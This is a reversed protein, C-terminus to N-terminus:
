PGPRGQAAPGYTRGKWAGGEGRWSRRASDVTMLTYLLGAVPLLPALLSPLGYWRLMPLYSGAMAAWAALGSAALLAAPAAPLGLGIAILGGVAALPPVLYLLLMGAVTGALLLPSYGLQAFASRAVMNWVGRLGEYPRLSRVERSLGLWLRGGEPRSRGKVLAALACDDIVAASIPALGGARELASRRLLLCGGAAGAMPRRRDNVWRFPYLKAFFYVFAPILLREWATATQLHAMASVLDLGEGEAKLVLSRLVHPAHAIDADTFLLLDSGARASARVGQELAWVKGTWGPPLPRGPVVTLRDQAGAQGAAWRAAEATGDKSQDDVLFVHFPGPYDQRLLTPLTRPLVEAENRAPVIVSVSPWPSLDAEAPAPPLRQDTLWFRGRGAVLYAWALLSLGSVAGAFWLATDM